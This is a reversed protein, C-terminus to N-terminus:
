GKKEKHKGNSWIGKISKGNAYYYTGTGEKIVNKQQGKYKSVSGNNHHYINKHEM